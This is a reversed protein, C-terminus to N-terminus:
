KAGAGDADRNLEKVMQQHAREVPVKLMDSLMEVLTTKRFAAVVRAQDVLRRDLKVPVDDRDSRPRGARKSEAMARELTAAVM